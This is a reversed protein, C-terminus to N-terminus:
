YKKWTVYQLSIPRNNSYLKQRLFQIVKAIELVNPTYWEFFPKNISESM